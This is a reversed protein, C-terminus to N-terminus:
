HNTEHCEGKEFLTISLGYDRENEFMSKIYYSVESNGMVYFARQHYYVM